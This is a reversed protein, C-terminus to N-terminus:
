STSGTAKAIAARILSLAESSIEDGNIRNIEYSMLMEECHKAVKLLAPAAAILAARGHQQEVANPLSEDITCLAIVRRDDGRVAVVQRWPWDVAAEVVWTELTHQASM